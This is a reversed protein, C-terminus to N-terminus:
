TTGTPQRFSQSQFWESCEKFFDYDLAKSIEFLLPMTIWQQNFVKYLNEPTCNVQKALWVATRGQNALVQKIIRGIHFDNPTTKCKM